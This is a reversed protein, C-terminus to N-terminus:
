LDGKITTLLNITKFYFHSLCAGAEIKVPASHKSTIM